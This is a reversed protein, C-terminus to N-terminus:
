SLCAPAARALRHVITRAHGPRARIALNPWLEAYLQETRLSSRLLTLADAMQDGIDAYLAKIVTDWASVAAALTEPLGGRTHHGVPTRDLCSRMHTLAMEAREAMTDLRTLADAEEATIWGDRLWREVPRRLRWGRIQGDDSDKLRTNDHRVYDGRYMQEPPPPCGERFPGRAQQKRRRSKM